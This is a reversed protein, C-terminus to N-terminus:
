AAVEGITHTIRHLQEPTHDLLFSPVSSVLTRLAALHAASHADAILVMPSQPILAALALAPTLPQVEDRMGRRLFVLGSVFARRALPLAVSARHRADEWDVTAEHAKLEPFAAALEISVQLPERWGHALIGEAGCEIIVGDDGLVRWGARASAYALTSKGSGSEGTLLWVRGDPAVIGAAHLHFRGRERLRLIAGTRALERRTLPTANAYGEARELRGRRLRLSAGEGTHVVLTEDGTTLGEV